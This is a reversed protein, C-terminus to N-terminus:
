PGSVCRPVNTGSASSSSSDAPRQDGPKRKALANGSTIMTFGDAFVVRVSNMTGRATVQCAQGKRGCRNWRYVLPLAESM